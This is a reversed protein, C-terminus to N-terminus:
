DNPLRRGNRRRRNGRAQSLATEMAPGIAGAVRQQAEEIAVRYTRDVAELTQVLIDRKAAPTFRVIANKLAARAGDLLDGDMAGLFNDKAHSDDVAGSFDSVALWIVELAKLDYSLLLAWARGIDQLNVLDVKQLERIKQLKQYDLWIEYDRGDADSFNIPPATNDKTM